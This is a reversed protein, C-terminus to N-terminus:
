GTSKGNQIKRFFAMQRLIKEETLQELQKKETETLERPKTKNPTTLYYISFILFLTLAILLIGRQYPELSTYHPTIFSELQETSTGLQDKFTM